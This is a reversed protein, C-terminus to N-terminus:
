RQGVELRHDISQERAGSSFGFVGRSLNKKELKGLSDLELVGRANRSGSRGFLGRV